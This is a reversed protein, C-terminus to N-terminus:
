NSNQNWGNYEGISPVQFIASSYFCVKCNCIECKWRLISTSPKGRNQRPPLVYTSEINTLNHAVDSQSLSVERIDEPVQVPVVLSPNNRSTSLNDLSQTLHHLEDSCPRNGASHLEIRCPGNSASSEYLLCDVRLTEHRGAQGELSLLGLNPEGISSPERCDSLGM